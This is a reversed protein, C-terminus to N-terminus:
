PFVRTTCAADSFTVLNGTWSLDSLWSAVAPSPAPRDAMITPPSMDLLAVDGVTTQAERQLALRHVLDGDLWFFAANIDIKNNEYADLQHVTITSLDGDGPNIIIIQKNIMGQDHFFKVKSIPMTWSQAYDFVGEDNTYISHLYKIHINDELDPVCDAPINYANHSELSIWVPGRELPGWGIRHCKIMEMTWSFELHSYPNKWEIPPEPPGNPGQPGLWESAVEVGKCGSLTFLHGRDYTNYLQNEGDAEPFTTGICGTLAAMFSFAIALYFINAGM